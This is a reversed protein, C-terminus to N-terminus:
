VAMSFENKGAAIIGANAIIAVTASVSKPRRRTSPHFVRM